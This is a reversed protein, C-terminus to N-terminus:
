RPRRGGKVGAQALAAAYSGFRSRITKITPMGEAGYALERQLPPRGNEVAWRQLAEVIEARSWLRRNARFGAAELAKRWTGFHTTVTMYSPWRHDESPTWDAQTPPRGTERTWERIAGLVAERSREPPRALRAACRPCREASTVVYTGCDACRGAVLYARVTRPSVDLVAAIESTSMSAGLRQALEIRKARGSAPVVPPRRMPLGAASLARNWGGFHRVVTATSPWRPHRAAWLRSMPGERGLVRASAPAWEYSRPPSGVLQTWDRLAQVVRDPTWTGAPSRVVRRAM